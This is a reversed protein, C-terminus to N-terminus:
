RGVVLALLSLQIGWVRKSVVAESHRFPFRLSPSKTIYGAKNQRNAMQSTSTGSFRTAVKKQQAVSKEVCLYAVV